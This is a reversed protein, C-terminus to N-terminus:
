APSLKLGAKFLGELLMDIHEELAFVPRMLDRARAPFDPQMELLKQLAEKAEAHRGMQGSTAARILPDLSIPTNFCVAYNWAEAYNGQRYQDMFPALFYISPHHPALRKGQDWLQMGEKWHGLMCLLLTSAYIAYANFPNLSRALRLKNRCQDTQGQFYRLVAESLHAMQCEPDLGIARRVMQEVRELAITEPTFHFAHNNCYAICLMALVVPNDPDNKVAYELADLAANYAQKTYIRLYLMQSCIAEHIEMKDHPKRMSEQGILCPIVGDYDALAGVVRKTLDDEIELLNMVAQSYEYNQSWIKFGTRIDTLGTNVRMTEDYIQVRGQLVFRTRYRNAIDDMKVSCNKYEELPGVIHLERFQAFGTVISETISDAYGNGDKIGQSNFPIVTISFGYDAGSASLPTISPHLHMDTQLMSNHRFMPIYTHKPIDIRIPDRNGEYLYYRELMMRVRGALVRM